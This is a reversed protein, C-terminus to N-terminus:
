QTDVGFRKTLSAIGDSFGQGVAKFKWGSTHRYVEGFILSTENSVIESIEYRCIENQTANDIVRIFSGNLQSFNQNRSEFDHISVAIAIKRIEEPILNLAIEISEDDGNGGGTQNDGNHIVSGCTSKLQNYFIFDNDDRVKGKSNLLFVSGDLDFESDSSYEWRLGITINTIGPSAKELSLNGGKSLNIKETKETKEINEPKTKPTPDQPPFYFNFTNAYLEDSTDVLQNSTEIVEGSEQTPNGEDNLLPAELINKITKALSAITYVGKKNDESYLSYNTEHSVLKEFDLLLSNFITVLEFLVGGIEQFRMQIALTMVQATKMEESALNAREINSYADEKAAEAKSALMMGGIALVPGAVIGGLVAAGGAMGFGTTALSGGGLWALTANTAAAGSLGAISAGTSATGLLGVGGYAALGALGGSGLAAIGGGVIEEMELASQQVEILEQSSIKPLEGHNLNSDSFDINKIKSFSEVFPIISDRYSSFKLEGLDEMTSQTTERTQELESKATDYLDQAEQNLEKADSFDSKADMGKKVGYGGALIAAGILLPLPM